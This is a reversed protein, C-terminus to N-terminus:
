KALTRAIEMDTVRDDLAAFKNCVRYYGVVMLMVVIVGFVVSCIEGVVEWRKQSKIALM